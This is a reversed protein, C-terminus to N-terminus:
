PNIIGPEPEIMNTIQYPKTYRFGPGMVHFQFMANAVRQMAPVDMILPYTDITMMSAIVSTAGTHKKLAAEVAGRDTDAVQQGRRLARLFAAVTGPHSQVWKATGVYGGIPFNQLAGQDFDALKEAGFAQMAMTGFPEPLWAVDVKGEPLMKLLDPFGNPPAYLNVSSVRVGNEQLLAGVLLAGINGQTNVGIKAHFRGLDAITRFKSDPMVYLAQNGPQMQSGDAIFRLNAQGAVQAQIFSVFNAAVIDAKGDDLDPITLEGGPTPRIIVNLGEDRFFGDDAAIYLGAEDATPVAEVVITTQELSQARAAGGGASCGALTAVLIAAVPLYSRMIIRIMRNGVIQQLRHVLRLRDPRAGGYDKWSQWCKPTKLDLAPLQGAAARTLVYARFREAAPLLRREGSWTLSIERVAGPDEIPVHSVTAEASAARPAPVVAVGLGAAVFGRVTALDEGEFVVDPSFGARECLEDTLRRLASRPGLSVFPQGAVEALGASARGALPHGPSVALRLPELAIARRGVEPDRHPRSSIELDARGGYLVPSGLEDRVQHLEFRVGPHEMRFGRVLDPVLWTGLSHQFALVVTGHAPDLLENLAAMGDDLSHLMADVHRKFVAGAHTMRLTRGSRYLLPVGVQAELRALARSVGSQTVPELESVETVTAGDAVQQFWRLADTDM